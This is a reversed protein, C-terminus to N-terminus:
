SKFQCRQFQLTEPSQQFNMCNFQMRFKQFTDGEDSTPAAAPSTHSNHAWYKRM